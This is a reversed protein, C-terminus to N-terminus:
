LKSGRGFKANVGPSYLVSDPHQAAVSPFGGAELLRDDLHELTADYLEWPEHENPLYLTARARRQFMAWRATLFEALPDDIVRQGTTRVSMSTTADSRGHRRSEYSFLGGSRIGTTDAWMYPLSFAAKAALVAALRAAELSVFVVGRRGREDVAYLRVNIEVFRGFFPVPPSGLMTADELVFGILGVWSSGDFEDPVTGLPLLPAVLSSDVRWHVFALDVWRQSAVSRGILGPASTSIPDVTV